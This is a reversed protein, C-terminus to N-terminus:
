PKSLLPTTTARLLAATKAWEAKFAAIRRCLAKSVPTDQLQLLESCLSEGSRIMKKLHAYFYAENATEPDNALALWNTPVNPVCSSEESSSTTQKTSDGQLNDPEGESEEQGIAPEASDPERSHKGLKQGPDLAAALSDNTRRFSKLTERMESISSALMALVGASDMYAANPSSM